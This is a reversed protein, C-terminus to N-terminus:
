IKHYIHRIYYSTEKSMHYVDRKAYIHRIYYRTEQTICIDFPSPIGIDEVQERQAYGVHVDSMCSMRCVWMRCVVYGCSMCSMRCVWVVHCVVYECSMVYARCVWMVYMVCSMGVHCVHCVVYGRSMVYARCVWMVHCSMRCVWMVHCSMRCVWTYHVVDSARVCLCVLVCPSRRTHTHTHPTHSHPHAHRHTHALTRMHAYITHIDHTRRICVHSRCLHLLNFIRTHIYVCM